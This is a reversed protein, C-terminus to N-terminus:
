MREELTMIQISLGPKKKYAKSCVEYVIQADDAWFGIDTMIKKLTGLMSSTDPKSQKWYYPKKDAYAKFDFEVKLFLAGKLPTEPKYPMLERRLTLEWGILAAKKRRTKLGEKYGTEYTITSPQCDVFINIPKM